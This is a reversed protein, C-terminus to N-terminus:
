GFLSSLGASAQEAAKAEEQEDKKEEKKEAGGAAPAATAFSVAEKLAEDIDVGELSAVLAKVKADDIQAGVSDLVKKVSDFSIQQKSENLILAAYVEQM